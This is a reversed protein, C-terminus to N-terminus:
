ESYHNKNRIKREQTKELVLDMKKCVFNYKIEKYIIYTFYIFLM